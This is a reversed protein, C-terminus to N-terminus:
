GGLGLTAKVRLRLGQKPDSVEITYTDAGDEVRELQLDSKELAPDSLDIASAGVRKFDSLRRKELRIEHDGGSHHDTYLYVHAGQCLARTTVNADPYYNAVGIQFAGTTKDHIIAPPLNRDGWSVNGPCNALRGPLPAAAPVQLRGLIEGRAKSASASPDQRPTGTTPLGLAQLVMLRPQQTGTPRSSFEPCPAKRGQSLRWQQEVIQRGGAALVRLHASQGDATFAITALPAGTAPISALMNEEASRIYFYDRGKYRLVPVGWDLLDFLGSAAYGPRSTPLLVQTVEVPGAVSTLPQVVQALEARCVQGNKVAVKALRTQEASNAGQHQHLSVAAAVTGILGCLVLGALGLLGGAEPPSLRSDSSRATGAAALMLSLAMFWLFYGWGYGYVDSDGGLGTGFTLANLSLVLALVASLVGGGSTQKRLLSLFFLPNAYWAFQLILPGLWGKALLQAGYTVHSDADIFVPLTLSIFWLM